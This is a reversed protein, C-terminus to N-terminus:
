KDEQKLMTCQRENVYHMVTRQDAKGNADVCAGSRADTM